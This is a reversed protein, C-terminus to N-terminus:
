SITPNLSKMHIIYSEFKEMPKVPKGDETVIIVPVLFRSSNSDLDAKDSVAM